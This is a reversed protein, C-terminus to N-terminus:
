IIGGQQWHGVAKECGDSTVCRSNAAKGLQGGARLAWWGSPIISYYFSPSLPNNCNYYNIQARIGLIEAWYELMGNKWVPAM